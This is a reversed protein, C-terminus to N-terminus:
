QKGLNKFGKWFILFDKETKYDKSYLSNLNNITQNDLHKGKLAECSSLVGYPLPPLKSIDVTNNYGVWTKKHFFVLVINKIFGFPKKIIFVFLPLGILLVISLALDLLRKNRRNSPHNISNINITYIDGFVDISNSGIIFLSEPPAIRFNLDPNKLLSMQDIITQSSIDKACFIIEDIAYIEVIEKLQGIHGVMGLEFAAQPTNGVEVLAILSPNINSSRLHAAIRTAEEHSGVIAFRKSKENGLSLNKYKILHALTRTVVTAIVAWLAGLMIIARSFRFSEPLLAYFVLITVTGFAIGRLISLYKMPKDYGGNLYISAVCVLAYIPFAIRLLEEPYYSTAQSVIMKTEWYEKIAFLGGIFLATDALPWFIRKFFRNAIAISARFYIAMNILISFLHANRASFHKSAFIVMARYFVFVYNVSSKKTSEGKYHIIRTHPFYYNKYGAKLIRYSLDIDEGYMFYDEDLLGTKDLTEKRMLMFAGSLIEVQHTQNNELFGLHYRGFTKSKPFLKSLGFIKYFAVDPTPLGRKSEPLFNGKGDLMKVGLGGADPHHDMFDVVKEFTDDQVVTDPNLLLVYEGNSIRIAQNNAKSFGLNEKNEITIAWPFKQKVMQMSGDVSNNDVVFVEGEINQM